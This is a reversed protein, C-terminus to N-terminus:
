RAFSPRLPPRWTLIPQWGSWRERSLTRYSHSWFGTSTQRSNHYHLFHSATNLASVATLTLRTGRTWRRKSPRLSHGSSSSANAATFTSTSGRALSFRGCLGLHWQLGRTTCTTRSRTRSSGPRSRTTRSQRRWTHCIWVFSEAWTICM